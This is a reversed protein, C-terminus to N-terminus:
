NIVGDSLPEHPVPSREAMWDSIPKATVMSCRIDYKWWDSATKNQRQTTDNHDVVIYSSEQNAAAPDRQTIRAYVQIARFRQWALATVYEYIYETDFAAFIM